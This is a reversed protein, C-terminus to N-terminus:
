DDFILRSGIGQATYTVQPELHKLAYVSHSDPILKLHAERRETMPLLVQLNDEETKRFRDTPNPFQRSLIQIVILSYSFVDLKARFGRAIWHIRLLFFPLM